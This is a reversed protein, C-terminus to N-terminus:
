VLVLPPFQNEELPNLMRTCTTIRSIHKSLYFLLISCYIIEMRRRETVPVKPFPLLNRIGATWSLCRERQNKTMLCESGHWEQRRVRCKIVMFRHPTDDYYKSSPSFTFPSCCHDFCSHASSSRGFTLRSCKGVPSLSLCPRRLFFSSSILRVFIGQDLLSRSDSVRGAITNLFM